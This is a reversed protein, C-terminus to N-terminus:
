IVRSGAPRSIAILWQMFLDIVIALLITPIAGLLVLDIAYQGLGEWVFVGLGGAGILGAVVTLGIAQVIVIRIGSLIVPLSLPILVHWAVQWRGMGMAQSAQIVSLPVEALGTYTNRVLPLLTYLILAIIAPAAGIGSVGLTKLWPFQNSLSALPVMLLAFLAISPVTQFFNLVGFVTGNLRPYRWILWGLPLGIVLLPVLAILVLVIHNVFATKFRDEHHHYEKIISLDDFQGVHFWIAVIVFIVCASVISLSYKFRQGAMRLWADLAILCLLLLVCWFASGIMVRSAASGEISAQTAASAMLYLWALLGVLAVGYTLMAHYTMRSFPKFVALLWLLVLYAAWISWVLLQVDVLKIAQGSQFRNPSFHLLPLLFSAVAMLIVLM